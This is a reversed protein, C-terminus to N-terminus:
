SAEAFRHFEARLRKVVPGPKGDGVPAGDISVVPMAITTASSLFAEQAAKAEAITFAREELKLNSRALVDILTTRTIGKLIDNDAKRTVLRGDQTIIWANSSAGETVFGEADILWAEFAGAERAAQKALVNPLLSISKIDRRAWRQDPHTKVAVGQAANKEIAAPNFSRATVVLSPRVDPGPFYFERPAAGRTIQFYVLGGSVRNRAVVERLVVQLAARAMPWAIRLESLSRSLRDLHRTEDILAGHRVECVEYVGDALQFGRDEIHVQAQAHPLYRGNVYAIRSM